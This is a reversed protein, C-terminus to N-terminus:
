VSVCRVNFGYYKSFSNQPYVDTTFFSLLYAHTSTSYATSSWYNGESGKGFVKNDNDENDLWGNKRLNLTGALKSSSLEEDEDQGFEECIMVWEHRTPLRWGEPIKGEKELTMAEDWTFFTKGDVEVDEPAIILGTTESKIGDERWKKDLEALLAARNPHLIESDYEALAEAVIKKIEEKDTKTLSM